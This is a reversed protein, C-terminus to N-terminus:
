GPIDAHTPGKTLDGSIQISHGWFLDGDHHWFDFSGDSSVTISELKMREKFQEANLEAENEDLWSDNKLPLLEKVAFDVIRKSWGQQDQWLTCAVKVADQLEKPETALLNVSIPQELWKTKGTFWNVRRDLTFTGLVPDSFTVPQQLEASRANLEADSSDVGVLEELLAQPTGIISNEVVRAKLRVITYPKIAKQHQKLEKETVQRHVLLPRHQLAAGETRWSDLIFRLTWLEEGRSKGGGAGPPWVVGLVEVIPSAALQEWLRKMRAQAEAVQDNIDAM